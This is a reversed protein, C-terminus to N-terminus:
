VIGIYDKQPDYKGWNFNNKNRFEQKVQKSFAKLGKGTCEWGHLRCRITYAKFVRYEM